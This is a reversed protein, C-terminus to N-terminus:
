LTIKPIALILAKIADELSLMKFPNELLIEKIISKAIAIAKIPGNIGVDLPQHIATKGVPVYILRINFMRAHLLVNETMHTIFSDLYKVTEIENNVTAM